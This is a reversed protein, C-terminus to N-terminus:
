NCTQSPTSQCLGPPGSCNGTTRKRPRPDSTHTTELPYPPSNSQTELAKPSRHCHESRTAEPVPPLALSATPQSCPFRPRQPVWSRLLPLISSTQPQEPELGTPQDDPFSGPWNGPSHAANQLGQPEITHRAQLRPLEHKANASPEPIPVKHSGM